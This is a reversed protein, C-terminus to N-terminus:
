GTSSGISLGTPPTSQVTLTHPDTYQAVATTATTRNVCLARAIDFDAWYPTGSISAKSFAKRFQECKEPALLTFIEMSFLQATTYGLQACSSHNADVCRNEPTQVMLIMDNTEDILARFRELDALREQLLPYYSKHLSTEGMGIIRERM